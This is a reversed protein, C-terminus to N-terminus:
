QAQEEDIYIVSNKKANKAHRESLLGFEMWAAHTVANIILCVHGLSGRIEKDILRSNYYDTVDTMTLYRLRENFEQINKCDSEISIDVNGDANMSGTIVHTKECTNMKVTIKSTM